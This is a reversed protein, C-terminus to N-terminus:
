SFAKTGELVAVHADVRTHGAHQYSWQHQRGEVNDPEQV